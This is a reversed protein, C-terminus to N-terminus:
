DMFKVLSAIAPEPLHSGDVYTVCEGRKNRSDVWGTFAAVVQNYFVKKGNTATRVAPLVQSIVRCCGNDLWEGTFGRKKMEEDAAERTQVGFM